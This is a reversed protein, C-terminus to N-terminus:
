KLYTYFSKIDSNQHQLWCVCCWLGFFPWSSNQTSQLHRRRRWCLVNRFIIPLTNWVKTEAISLPWGIPVIQLKWSVLCFNVPRLWETVCPSTEGPIDEKWWIRPSYLLIKQFQENLIWKIKNKDWNVFDGLLLLNSVVTSFTCDVSELVDRDLQTFM